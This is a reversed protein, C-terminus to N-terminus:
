TKKPSFNIPLEADLDMLKTPKCITECSPKNTSNSMPQQVQILHIVWIQNGAVLSLANAHSASLFLALLVLFKSLATM